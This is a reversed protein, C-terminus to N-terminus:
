PRDAFRAIFEEYVEPPVFGRVVERWGEPGVLGKVFSSSTEALHRPPILFVTTVDPELDGNVHRMTREYSFDQGNRIGRLVYRAGIRAAYRILFQNEFHDVRVNPMSQTISRLLRLREELGFTTRKDPNVGVAVVLESFLQAGERIMYLHGNTPPDFSGAYVAKAM